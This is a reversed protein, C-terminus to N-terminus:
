DGRDNAAGYLAILAADARGDDKVRAFKDRHEPWREQCLTRSAGKPKGSLGMSKKWAQPTPYSIPIFNAALVGRIVGASEGFKFTSAVGQGPMSGVREVTAKLKCNKAISAAASIIDALIYANVEQGKGHTRDVVPMDWVLMLEQNDANVLAIAGTIGPDIGLMM